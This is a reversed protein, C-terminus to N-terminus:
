TQRPPAAIRRARPARAPDRGPPRPIRFRRPRGPATGAERAGAAPSQPTAAAGRGTRPPPVPDYGGRCLPHCRLLRWAALASGKWFGHVLVAELAYGSCTPVFRCSPPTLPSVGSRYLRILLAALRAARSPAPPPAGAPGPGAPRADGREGTRARRGFFFAASARPLSWRLSRARGPAAQPRTDARRPHPSERRLTAM